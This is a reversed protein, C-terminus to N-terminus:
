GRITRRGADLLSGKDTGTARKMMDGNMMMLTQPITGNFTTTEGGDDTGFDITFQKLWESSPRKRSKTNGSPRTPPPPSWCRNTCSKPRMQRLYFHSFQPKEGLTPDDTRNKGPMVQEVLRVAREARDLPDTGESRLRRHSFRHQHVASLSSKAFDSALRDLLEPHSPRTTRAWTTSRSPSATAWFHGWMRNVIAKSLYDSEVILKALETRRDVEKMYGSRSIQQGDVFVPYAVKVIGNRLEYYLDAPKADGGEGRFDVNVLEADDVKKKAQWRSPSTADPPLLRENGLVPKAEMRQVSPQPVAHMPGAPRPFDPGDQRHGAPRQRGDQRDPFERRRQLRGRGAQQEGHGFGVGEGDDYSKNKEFSRRLYQAMGERDVPIARDERRTARSPRDVTTAGSTAGTAPMNTSMSTASCSTSWISSRIRSAIRRHVGDVRRGASHPRDHGLLRPPVMRRRHGTPSPTLHHDAWSKRVSENIAEVQPMGYTGAAAKGSTTKPKTENAPTTSSATAAASGTAGSETTAARAQLGSSLVVAFGLTGVGLWQALRVRSQGDRNGGMTQRANM